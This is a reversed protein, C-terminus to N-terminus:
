APGAILPSPILVNVWFKEDTKRLCSVADLACEIGEVADLIADKREASMGGSGSQIWLDVSGLLAPIADTMHEIAGCLQSEAVISLCYQRVELIGSLRLFPLAVDRPRM